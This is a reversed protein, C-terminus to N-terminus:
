VCADTPRKSAIVRDQRRGCAGDERNSVVPAGKLADM